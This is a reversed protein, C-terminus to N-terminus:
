TGFRGEDERHPLQVRRLQSAPESDPEDARRVVVVVVVLRRHPGIRRGLPRRCTNCTKRKSGATDQGRQMEEAAIVPNAWM